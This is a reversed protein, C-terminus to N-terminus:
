TGSPVPARVADIPPLSMRHRLHNSVSTVAGLAAAADTIEPVVSVGAGALLDAFRRRASETGPTGDSRLAVVVPLPNPEARWRVIAALMAEVVASPLAAVTVLATLNLHIVVADVQQSDRIVRLVEGIVTGDRHALADVPADIPNAVSSGAPLGLRELQARTAEDLPPTQLGARALQDCGLVSSGGGNGVLAVRHVPRDIDPRINQLALLATLFGDLTDVLVCGTQRALAQWVRDGTLMAGTHSAAARQGSESRGGKLLVCPKHASSDRLLEFLARGRRVHELYMGIVRTAPDHLYYELLEPPDVDACNGVTVLGSFAVGRQQGRLLIDAGLGGSQSIVGVSGVTRAAPGIFSVGGRPSFMGLCNPGVIRVGSRRAAEVVRRELGAGEPGSEGLGSTIVQAFAVTTASGLLDVLSAAPVAVYAYDVPGPMEAFSPYAPVGDIDSASPHLAYLPGAYGFERLARVFRNGQAERTRSMGAVAVARPAFLPEFQARVDIM